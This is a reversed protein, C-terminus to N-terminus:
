PSVFTETNFDRSIFGSEALIPLFFLPGPELNKIVTNGNFLEDRLFSSSEQIKQDNKMGLARSAFCGSSAAAILLSKRADCPLRWPQARKVSAIIQINLAQGAPEFEQFQGRINGVGREFNLFRV